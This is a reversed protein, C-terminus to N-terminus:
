RVGATGPRIAAELGSRRADLADLADLADIRALIAKAKALEELIDVWVAALDALTPNPNPPWCRFCLPGDPTEVYPSAARGCRCCPVPDPATEACAAIFENLEEEEAPSLERPVSQGNVILWLTSRAAPAAPGPEPGDGDGSPELGLAEAARAKSGDFVFLYCPNCLYRGPGLEIGHLVPRITMEGGCRVCEGLVEAEWVAATAQTAM